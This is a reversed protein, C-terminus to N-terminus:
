FRYGLTLGGWPTVGGRGAVVMLYGRVVVPGRYEYGTSLQGGVGTSRAGDWEPVPSRVREHVLQPGSQAFWAHRGWQVADVGVYPSLAVTTQGDADLASVAGGVSWRRDLRYDYGVGWLGAKGFLELYVTHPAEQRDEVEGRAVGPAWALLAGIILWRM